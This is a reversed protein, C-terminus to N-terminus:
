ATGTSACISSNSCRQQSRKTRRQRTRLLYRLSVRTQALPPLGVCSTVFFRHPFPAVYVLTSSLWVRAEIERAFQFQPNVPAISSPSHASLTTAIDNLQVAASMARRM